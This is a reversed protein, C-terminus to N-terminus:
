LATVDDTMPRQSFFANVHALMSDFTCGAYLVLHADVLLATAVTEASM